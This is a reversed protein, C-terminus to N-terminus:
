SSAGTVRQYNIFFDNIAARYDDLYQHLKLVDEHVKARKERADETAAYFDAPQKTCDIRLAVSLQREYAQYSSRFAELGSKYNTTVLLLGKADLSNSTLRTNFNNMLRNSLLEYLQGRNVRLLADSAHLQNLTSKASTCNAAIRQLQSDDLFAQAEAKRVTLLPLLMLAALSFIILRKSIKM